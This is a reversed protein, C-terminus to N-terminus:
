HAASVEAARGSNILAELEAIEAYQRKREADVAPTYDLQELAVSNRVFRLGRLLIEQQKSSLVVRVDNM